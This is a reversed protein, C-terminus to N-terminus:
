DGKVEITHEKVHVEYLFQYLDEVLDVPVYEGVPVSIEQYYDILEEYRDFQQIIENNRPQVWEDDYFIAIEVAEYEDYDELEAQPISYHYQSAQISMKFHGLVIHDFMRLGYLYGSSPNRLVTSLFNSM